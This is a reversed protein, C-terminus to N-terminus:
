PFRRVLTEDVAALNPCGSLKMALELESRLIALARAVGQEGGASLGYLYSRGISCAKAGRALAKLVHSGRRIGGDLIVEIREGVARVIDPLVEFSAAAGDLQRGGHNSVMVATAGSDVARRADDASMIGKLALPGAWRDAIDRIDAWKISSDLQGALHRNQELLRKTGFRAEFNALSWPEGKLQGFVWAPRQAFSAISKLSLNPPLTWGSRLDRERKGVVPTDVTVCLAAYGCQKSRALLDWTIGRDKHVYLQFMKPGTTAAAVAELACTAGTALSYLTGANAAARAVAIEGDPHFLRSAGTPSCIVPWETQQGLIRTSMKVVGVDV